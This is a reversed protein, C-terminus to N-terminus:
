TELLSVVFIFTGFSLFSRRFCMGPGSADGSSLFGLTGVRYGVTVVIVNGRDALEKGDYLYNDLFSAGMSGGVM